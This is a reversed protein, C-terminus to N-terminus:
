LCSMLVTSDSGTRNIHKPSCPVNEQSVETADGAGAAAPPADAPAHPAQAPEARKRVLLTDGNVIALSSLMSDTSSPLAVPAPPFGALIELEGPALGTEKSLLELFDRLQM